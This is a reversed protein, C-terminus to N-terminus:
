ALAVANEHFAIDLMLCLSQFIGFHQVHKRGAAAVIRLSFRCNLGTETWM